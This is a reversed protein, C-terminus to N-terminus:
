PIEEHCPCDPNYQQETPYIPKDTCLCEHDITVRVIAEFQAQVDDNLWYTGM